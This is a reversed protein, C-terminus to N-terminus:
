TFAEREALWYRIGRRRFQKLAGTDEWIKFGSSRNTQPFATEVYDPWLDTVGLSSDLYDMKELFGKRIDSSWCMLHREPRNEQGLFAVEGIAGPERGGGFSVRVCRGVASPLSIDLMDGGRWMPLNVERGLLRRWHKGDAGVEIERVWFVQDSKGNVIRAGFLVRPKGLDIVLSAGGNAWAFRFESAPNGDVANEPHSYQGSAAEASVVRLNPIAKTKLGDGAIM